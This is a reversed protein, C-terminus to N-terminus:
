HDKNAGTEIVCSSMWVRVAVAQGYCHRICLLARHSVIRWVEVARGLSSHMFLDPAAHSPM